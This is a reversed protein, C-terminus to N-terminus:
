VCRVSGVAQIGARRLHAEYDFGGPNRLGHPPKVRTEVEILDGVVLPPVPGRITLRLRGTVPEAVEQVSRILVVASARDPGYRVPEVIEGVLSVKNGPPASSRAGGPGVIRSPAGSPLAGGSGVDPRLSRLLATSDAHAQALAASVAGFLFVGYVLCAFAPACRSTWSLLGLLLLLVVAGCFMVIPFYAVGTGAVSGLLLSVALVPVPHFRADPKAPALAPDPPMPAWELPRVPGRQM